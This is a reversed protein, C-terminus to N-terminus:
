TRTRRWATLPPAAEQSLIQAQLYNDYLVHRVVDSPSRPSCSTASRRADPRRARGRARAPDQPQGRPRLLRRRGLQRHLRHQDPRGAPAYEIRGRQTFGLNGGEGVVRAGCSAATSACPTTRATASTPTADRGLGQRVHRHRRELAPRGPRAPDGRMLETPALASPRSASRSPAGRALRRREERHAALRRRGASILPATTTTGRRARCSSSGGASPSARGGRRADPRPLRAPPRVRRRPQIQERSLMGNGFVDGSMDGIGVVTFPETM